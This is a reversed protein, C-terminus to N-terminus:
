AVSKESRGDGLPRLRTMLRRPSPSCDVDTPWCCALHPCLDHQHAFVHIPHHNDTKGKRRECGIGRLKAGPLLRDRHDLPHLFFELFITRRRGKRRHVTLDPWKM